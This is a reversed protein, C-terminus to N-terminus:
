IEVARADSLYEQVAGEVEALLQDQIEAEADLLRVELKTETRCAADASALLVEDKTIGDLSMPDFSVSSPADWWAEFDYGRAEMCRSWEEVISIGPENAYLRENSELQVDILTQYGAFGASGSANGYAAQYANPLCGEVNDSGEEVMSAGFLAASAENTLRPQVAAERQAAKVADVDRYGWTSPDANPIAGYRAKLSFVSEPITVPPLDIPFGAAAMCAEAEREVTLRAATEVDDGLLLISEIPLGSRLRGRAAEQPASSQSSQTDGTCSSIIMLASVLLRTHWSSKARAVWRGM